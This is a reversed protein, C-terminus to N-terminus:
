LFSLSIEAPKFQRNGALPAYFEPVVPAASTPALAANGFVKDLSIM